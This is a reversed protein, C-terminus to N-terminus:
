EERVRGRAPFTTEDFLLLWAVNVGLFVLLTLLVAELRLPLVSVGLDDLFGPAIAVVAILAYLVMAGVYAAVGLATPAPGRVIFLVVVGGLAVLGFSVRWMDSSRSDVLSLLGMLGPLAFYLSVGSPPNGVVPFNSSVM